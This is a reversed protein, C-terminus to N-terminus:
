FGSLMNIMITLGIKTVLDVESAPITDVQGSTSASSDDSTVSTQQNPPPCTTINPFQVDGAFASFALALTLITAACLKRVTEM